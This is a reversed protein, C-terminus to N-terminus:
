AGGDNALNERQSRHTRYSGSVVMAGSSRCIRHGTRAVNAHASLHGGIGCLCGSVFAFYIRVAEPTNEKALPYSRHWAASVPISGRCHFLPASRCLHGPPQNLDDNGSRPVVRQHLLHNRYSECDHPYHSWVADDLGCPAAHSGDLSCTCPCFPRHLGSGGGAVLSGLASVRLATTGFKVLEIRTADPPPGVAFAFSLGLMLVGAIGSLGSLICFSRTGRLTNAM